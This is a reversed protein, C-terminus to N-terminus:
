FGSDGALADRAKSSSSGKLSSISRTVHGPSIPSDTARARPNAGMTMSVGPPREPVSAEPVAADPSAVEPSAAEPVGAEPAAAEPVAGESAAGDLVGGEAVVDSSVTWA